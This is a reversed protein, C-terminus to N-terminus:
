CPCFPMTYFYVLLCASYLAGQRTFSANCLKNTFEFIVDSLLHFGEPQVIAILKGFALFEYQSLFYQFIYLPDM